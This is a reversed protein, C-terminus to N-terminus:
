RIYTHGETVTVTLYLHEGKKTLVNSCACGPWIHVTMSQVTIPGVAAQMPSCLSFGLQLLQGYILSPDLTWGVSWNMWNGAGPVLSVQMPHGTPYSPLSFRNGSTTAVSGDACSQQLTYLPRAVVGNPYTAHLDRSMRGTVTLTGTGGLDAVVSTVQFDAFKFGPAASAPSAAALVLALAVFVAFPRLRFM